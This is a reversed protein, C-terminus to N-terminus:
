QYMNWNGDAATPTAVELFVQYIHPVATNGGNIFTNGYDGRFTYFTEGAGNTEVANSSPSGFQDQVGLATQTILTTATTSVNYAFVDSQPDNGDPTGPNVPNRNGDYVVVTGATSIGPYEAFDTLGDVIDPTILTVAGTSPDAGSINKAWLRFGTIGTAGLDTDTNVIALTGNGSLQSNYDGVGGGPNTGTGDTSMAYVRNASGRRWLYLQDTPGTTGLQNNSGGFFFVENGTDSIDSIVSSGTNDTAGSPQVDALEFANTLTDWLYTRRVFPNLPNTATGTVPFTSQLNRAFCSFGVYRGNASMAAKSIFLDFGFANDGADLDLQGGIATELSTTETAGAKRLFVNANWDAVGGDPNTRWETHDGMWAVDGNNSVAVGKISGNNNLNNTLFGWGNNLVIDGGPGTQFWNLGMGTLLVETAPVQAGMDIAPGFSVMDYTRNELDVMMVGPADWQNFYGVPDVDGFYPAFSETEFAMYRANPSLAIPGYQAGWYNHVGEEMSINSSDDFTTIAANQRSACLVKAETGADDVNHVYVNNLGFTAFAHESPTIWAAFGGDATIVPVDPAANGGVFSIAVGTSVNGGFSRVLHKLVNPNTIAAVARDVTAPAGAADFSVVDVINGTAWDKMMIRPQQDNPDMAPFGLAFESLFFTRQGDNSTVGCLDNISTFSSGWRGDPVKGLTDTSTACRTTLTPDAVTTDAVYIHTDSSDTPIGGGVIIPKTSAWTVWQGNRSLRPRVCSAANGATPTYVAGSDLASVTKTNVTSSEWVMVNFYHEGAFASPPAYRYTAATPRAARTGWAPAGFSGLPTPLNKNAISQAATMYAVRYTGSGSDFGISPYISDANGSVTAAAGALGSSRTNSILQVTGVSPNAGSTNKLVIDFGSFAGYDCAEAINNETFAGVTALDANTVFAVRNGDPSVVGDFNDGEIAAGAANTSVRYIVPSVGTRDYMFVDVGLSPVASVLEGAALNTATSSFVIRDGDSSVSNEWVKFEHFRDDIPAGTIFEYMGSGGDGPEDLALDKSVLTTTSSGDGTGVGNVLHDWVYVNPLGSTEELTLNDALSTYVVSLRGTAPDVDSMAPRFSHDNAATLPRIDGTMPDGFIFSTDIRRFVPDLAGRRSQASTDQTLFLEKARAVYKDKMKVPQRLPIIGRDAVFGDYGPKLWQDARQRPADNIDRTPGKAEAVAGFALLGSVAMCVLAKTKRM